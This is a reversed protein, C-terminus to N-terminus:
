SFNNFAYLRSAASKASALIYANGAPNVTIQKGADIAGAITPLNLSAASAAAAVASASAATASGAAATASGSAASASGSAASASTSAAAAAAIGATIASLPTPTLQFRTNTLDYRCTVIEGALIDNAQLATGDQRVISKIGLAGPSLTSAATNANVARFVFEMGDAYAAVNANIAIIYANAAGTDTVFSASNTQAAAPAPLKDMGASIAAFEARISASVGRNQAAPAGTPTYYSNSL